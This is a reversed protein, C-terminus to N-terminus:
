ARSNEYSMLGHVRDKGSLRLVKFNATKDVAAQESEASGVDVM